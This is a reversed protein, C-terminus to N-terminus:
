SYKLLEGSLLAINKHADFHGDQVQNAGSRAGMMYMSRTYRAAFLAM